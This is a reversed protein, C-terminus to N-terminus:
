RAITTIVGTRGDVRRVRRSQFESVYYTGDPAVAVHNPIDLSARAAPAGDGTSDELGTGAIAELGGKGLRHVQNRGVVYLSGDPAEDAHLVLDLEAITAIRGTRPDIRRLRDNETDAVVIAGDAAVAIGHPHHLLARSAPGGDGGYGPDGNGAITAITGTAADVRRIRNEYEAVYVNGAADVAVGAVANLPASAAPGGDGGFGRAGTGAVTTTGSADIRRVREGAVVYVAGDPGVTVDVPEPVEALVTTEATAPDIRVVRGAARDAVVVRGEADLALAFPEELEAVPAAAPRDAESGGCGAVAVVAALVVALRASV